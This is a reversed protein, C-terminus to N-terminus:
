LMDPHSEHVTDNQLDLMMCILILKSSNECVTPLQAARQPMIEVTTYLRFLQESNLCKQTGTDANKILFVVAFPKLLQKGLIALCLYHVSVSFRSYVDAVTLVYSSM